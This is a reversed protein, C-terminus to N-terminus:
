EKNKWFEKWSKDTKHQYERWSSIKNNEIKIWVTGHYSNTGIYTYEGVGIQNIEDFISNYFICFQELGDDNEFFELLDKKNHFTYNLGDTYFLDENFFQVIRGYDRIKWSEVMLDLMQHFNNTKM